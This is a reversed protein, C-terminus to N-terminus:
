TISRRRAVDATGPPVQPAARKLITSVARVLEGTEIGLLYQADPGTAGVITQYGTGAPIWAKMGPNPRFWSVSPAGTMLALHLTGTDGSLHLASRQIVAALQALNLEGPFIKWPKHRMGGLLAQMKRRERETPAGSFVWRKEPFESELLRIVQLLQEPSLERNDATTFPSIHFYTGADAPMIGAAQLHDPEIEVHFEAPSHPFGAQELCRCKQVYSPEVLSSHEVIETFMRRWFPPGGDRPIRGLRERAGSFFTLWSSRDSGNLNILVDFRERRLRAVIQLNQRLTAHKPFRPYGWVRDLWPVCDMLSIVHEAVAMHLEAQPYAQRVLWLAPLTHITDGLFGLDLVMVKQARRTRQLFRGRTPIGPMILNCYSEERVNKRSAAERSPIDSFRAPL